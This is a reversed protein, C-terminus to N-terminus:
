EKQLIQSEVKEVVGSIYQKAKDNLAKYVAADEYIELAVDYLSVPESAEGYVM